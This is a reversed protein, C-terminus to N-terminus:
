TRVDIKLVMVTRDDSDGMRQGSERLIRAALDRPSLGDFEQLLQRLWEDDKGSSVGDSVLVVCDGAELTVPFVDPRCPRGVSLGMPLANGEVREVRGGHRLYTPAAGLKYVASRGTYLDIRLMDVTTFGGGDEGRLALAEGVTCLAEEAELGAKLFKELLRLACDSDERAATGSGMGDCLIVNLRGGPDKFWAGVDGSVSQGARDAATVGAVASLPERQSLVAQGRGGEEAKLPCGMLESLRSVEEARTLKEMGPGAAELRLHGHEDQWVTCSGELGLATMRQKVLRQRRVDPVIERGLEAATRDLVEALQGYQACVAARSERVRSDYRRRHLLAALEQNATGLFADFKVCNGAFYPPFDEPQGRGRDLMAPLADSLATRTTQYEKQWCRERRRCGACVRDATRDFIRATDGDNEGNRFSGRLGGSVARFAAATQRLRRAALERSQGEDRAPAEQRLLGSFRGILRDPLLLFLVAGAVLECALATGGEEARVWLLVAGGSMVYALAAPLRNQRCFIGTILGPLAYALTYYSPAEASLGMALGVAIGAAAGVGVGGKWGAIMVALASLIRGLSFTDAVTVRSLTMLLSVGLVLAGVGQQVTVVGGPRYEDWLQFALRYFYVVGATLVVETIYGVVAGGTWGAASQYVFGVLGNLVAAVAPMFWVRRYLNFEGMALAVAYVMMAAAIYRLGGVFGRFSLYGVATGLLAALGEMGPRCVGVFALGFLARGGSIEAGALVAGLLFRVLCDSLKMAFPVSLGKRESRERRGANEKATM